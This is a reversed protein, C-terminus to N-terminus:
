GDKLRVVIEDANEVVHNNTLIFGAPDVIFGSGLSRAKYPRNGRPPGLFPGFFDHFPDDEGGPGGPGFPNIGGGKVEQTTSVNVVSPSLEDSLAAFDPLNVGPEPKSPQSSEAQPKAQDPGGWLSLAQSPRPGLRGNALMGIAFGL